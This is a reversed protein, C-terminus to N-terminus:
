WEVGAGPTVSILVAQTGLPTAKECAATAALGAVMSRFAALCSRMIAITKRYCAATDLEVLALRKGKGPRNVDPRRLWM